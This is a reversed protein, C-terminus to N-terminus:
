EEGDDEDEDDDVERVAALASARLDDYHPLVHKRILAEIERLTAAHDLFGDRWIAGRRPQFSDATVSFGDGDRWVQLGFPINLEDATSLSLPDENPGGPEARKDKNWVFM